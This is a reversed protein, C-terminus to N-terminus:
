MTIDLNYDKIARTRIGKDFQCIEGTRLNVALIYDATNDPRIFKGFLWHQEPFKANGKYVYMFDNDVRMYPRNEFVFLDGPRLECIVDLSIEDKIVYKM